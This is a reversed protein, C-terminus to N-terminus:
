LMWDAGATRKFQHDVRLLKQTHLTILVAPRDSTLRALPQLSACRPSTIGPRAAVLQPYHAPRGACTCQVCAAEEASCYM